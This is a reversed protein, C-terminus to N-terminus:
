QDNAPSHPKTSTWSLLKAHRAPSSNADHSDTAKRQEGHSEPGSCYGGTSLNATNLLLYKYSFFNTSFNMTWFNGTTGEIAKKIKTPDLEAAMHVDELFEEGTLLSSQSAGLKPSTDIIRAITSKVVDRRATTGDLIDILRSVHFRIDRQLASTLDFFYYLCM